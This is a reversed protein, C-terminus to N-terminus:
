TTRTPLNSQGENTRSQWADYVAHGHADLNDPRDALRSASADHARIVHPLRQSKYAFDEHPEVSFPRFTRHGM